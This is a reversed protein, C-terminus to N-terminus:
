ISSFNLQINQYEGNEDKLYVKMYKKSSPRSISQDILDMAEQWTIKMDKDVIKSTHKKLSLIRKHDLRGSSTQFANEIISIIFNDGKINDRILGLLKEKASELKIEEFSILENINVEIKISRNFNFWTYNGKGDLKVSNEKRCEELIDNIASDMTLKLGQLLESAKQADKLIKFAHREKMREAKTTRNYPITNGSEDIWNSDKTTQNIIM